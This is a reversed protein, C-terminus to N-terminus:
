HHTIKPKDIIYANIKKGNMENMIKKLRIFLIYFIFFSSTKFIKNYKLNNYVEM